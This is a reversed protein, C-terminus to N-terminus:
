RAMQPVGSLGLRITTFMVPSATVVDDYTFQLVVKGGLQLANIRESDVQMQLRTRHWRYGLVEVVLNTGPFHCDVRILRDGRRGLVQQTLPRPLGALHLLRLFEQELWTHGGRGLEYAELLAVLQAPGSRGQRRLASIRRHLFDESTGGDRLASELAPLVVAAPHDAALDILTRAPSTTAFGLAAGRDILDISRTVHVHHGFRALRTGHPVLLHFPAALTFGDM